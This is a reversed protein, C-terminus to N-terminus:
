ILFDEEPQSGDDPQEYDPASERRVVYKTKLIPRGNAGVKISVDYGKDIMDSAHHLMDSVRETSRLLIEKEHIVVEDKGM